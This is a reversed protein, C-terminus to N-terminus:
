ISRNRKTKGRGSSHSRRMTASKTSLQSASRTSMNEMVKRRLGGMLVDKMDMIKHFNRQCDLYTTRMEEEQSPGTVSAEDIEDIRELTKTAVTAFHDMEDNLKRLLMLFTKVPTKPM